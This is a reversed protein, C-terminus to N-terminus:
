SKSRRGESDPDCAILVMVAGHRVEPDDDKLADYLAGRFDSSQPGLVLDRFTSRIEPYRSLLFEGIGRLCDVLRIAFPSYSCVGGAATGEM